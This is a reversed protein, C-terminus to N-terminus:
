TKNPKTEIMRRSFTTRHTSECAVFWRPPPSCREKVLSFTRSVGGTSKEDMRVWRIRKGMIYYKSNLVIICQQHLASCSSFRNSIVSSHRIKISGHETDSKSTEVWDSSCMKSYWRVKDFRICVWARHTCRKHSAVRALRSKKKVWSIGTFLCCKKKEKESKLETFESLISTRAMSVLVLESWGSSTSPFLCVIVSFMAVCRRIYWLFIVLFHRPPGVAVFSHIFSLFFFDFAQFKLEFYARIQM